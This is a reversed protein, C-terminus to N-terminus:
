KKKEIWDSQFLTLLFRTTANGAADQRPEARHRTAHQQPWLGAAGGRYLLQSPEQQTGTQGCPDFPIRETALDSHSFEMLQFISYRVAPHAFCCVWIYVLGKKVDGWKVNTYINLVLCRNMQM